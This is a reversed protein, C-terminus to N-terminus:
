WGDMVTEEMHEYLIPLAMDDESLRYVESATMGKVNSGGKEKPKMYNEEKYLVIRSFLLNSLYNDHVMQLVTHRMKNEDTIPETLYRNHFDVLANNMKVFAKEKEQYYGNVREKGKGLSYDISIEGNLESLNKFDNIVNNDLLEAKFTELNYDEQKYPDPQFQQHLILRGQLREVDVKFDKIRQIKQLPVSNGFKDTRKADFMKLVDSAKLENKSIKREIDSVSFKKKIEKPIPTETKPADKITTTCGYLASLSILITGFVIVHKKMSWDAGETENDEKIIKEHNNFFTLM